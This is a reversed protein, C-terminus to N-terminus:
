GMALARFFISGNCTSCSAIIPQGFASIAPMRPHSSAIRQRRKSLAIRFPCSRRFMARLRLIYSSAILSVDPHEHPEPFKAQRLGVLRWQALRQMMLVFRDPGRADLLRALAVAFKLSFDLDEQFFRAKSRIGIGCASCFFGYWNASVTMTPNIDFNSFTRFRRLQCLEHGLFQNEDLGIMAPKFSVWDNPSLAAHWIVM